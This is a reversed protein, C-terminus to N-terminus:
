FNIIKHIENIVIEWKFISRFYKVTDPKQRKNDLDFRNYFLNKNLLNPPNYKYIPSEKLNDVFPIIPSTSPIIINCGLCLAEINTIGFAEWEYCNFYYLTKSLIHCIELDSLNIFKQISCKYKENISNILNICYKNDQPILFAIKINYLM